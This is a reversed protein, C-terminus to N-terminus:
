SKIQKKTMNKLESLELHYNTKKSITGTGTHYIIAFTGEKVKDPLKLEEEELVQSNREGQKELIGIEEEENVWQPATDLIREDYPRFLRLHRVSM